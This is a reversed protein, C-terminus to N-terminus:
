KIAQETFYTRAGYLKHLSDRHECKLRCITADVVRRPGSPASRQANDKRRPGNPASRKASHTAQALPPSTRLNVYQPTSWEARVMRRPGNPVTREARVTQRPGNPLVHQKHLSDHHECYLQCKTALVVRRPGNPASQLANDKRRPGYPASRKASHIAQALQRSDRQKREETNM